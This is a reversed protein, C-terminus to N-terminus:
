LGEESEKKTHNSPFCCKVRTYMWKKLRLRISTLKDVYDDDFFDNVQDRSIEDTPHLDRYTIYLERSLRMQWQPKTLNKSERRMGRWELDPRPKTLHDMITMLREYQKYTLRDDDIRIYDM